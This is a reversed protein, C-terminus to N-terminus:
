YFCSMFKESPICFGDFSIYHQKYGTLFLILFCIWIVYIWWFKYFHNKM